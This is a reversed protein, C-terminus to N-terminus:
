KKKKNTATNEKEEEAPEETAVPVSSCSVIFAKGLWLPEERGDVSVQIYYKDIRLPTCRLANLTDGETEPIPCSLILDLEKRKQSARILWVDFQLGWERQRRKKQDIHEDSPILDEEDLLADQQDEESMEEVPEVAPEDIRKAMIM